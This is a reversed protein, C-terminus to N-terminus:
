IEKAQPFTQLLSEIKGTAAFDTTVDSGVDILAYVDSPEYGQRLILEIWRSNEFEERYTLWRGFSNRVAIGRVHGSHVQIRILVGIKWKARNTICTTRREDANGPCHTSGSLASMLPVEWAWGGIRLPIFRTIINYVGGIFLFDFIRYLLYM